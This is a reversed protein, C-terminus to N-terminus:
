NHLRCWKLAILKSVNKQFIRYNVYKCFSDFELFILKLIHIFKFVRSLESIRISNISEIFDMSDHIYFKDLFNTVFSYFNDFEDQHANIPDECNFSRIWFSSVAIRNFIRSKRGQDDHTIQHSHQRIRVLQQPCSVLSGIESLRLWLDWDQSRVVRPRYLNISKVASSLYFASSHAPFKKHTKLNSLLQAHATPYNYSGLITGNEDINLSNCGVFVIKKDKEAYSLQQELRNPESIDDCDIRAIWKGKSMEIGINLSDALGSNEKQIYIIRRDHKAYYQIIDSSGDNSGDDIIIFEFDKYTQKLISEISESLWAESNYCAMIVSISTNM